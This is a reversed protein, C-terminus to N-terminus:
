FLVVTAALGIVLSTGLSVSVLSSASTPTQSASAGAGTPGTGGTAVPTSAGGGSSSQTSSAGSSSASNSASASGTSSASSASAASSSSSGLAAYLAESRYTTCSSSAPIAPSYPLQGIPTGEGPQQWESTQGDSGVYIGPPLQDDGLCSEFVDERYAAPANVGCGSRDYVHECLRYDGENSPDCAKFCFQNAGMFNHWRIVQQWNSGNIVEEADQGPELTTANPGFSPTFVLGGLPNGRQDAGLDRAFSQFLIDSHKTCVTMQESTGASDMEGGDDDAAINILDQRIFGTVQVYSPTKMFQVATLAGAPLLRTGYGPKTCWAVMEGEVDGVTGGAERPAWLCFDDISVIHATQCLSTPGETTSNCINYGTQRGRVGNDTDAQYPLNTWNFRKAVLPTFGEYSQQARALTSLCAAAVLATGSIAGAGSLM